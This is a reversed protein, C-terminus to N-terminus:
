RVQLQDYIATLGGTTQLSRIVADHTGRTDTYGQVIATRDRVTITINDLGSAPLVQPRLEGAVRNALPLDRDSAAHIRLKPYAPVTVPAPVRVVPAAAVVKPPETTYVPVTQVSAVPAAVYASTVPTAFKVKIRNRVAAVGPTSRVVTDITQRDQEVPVEGELTVVADDVDIDVDRQNIAQKLNTKLAKDARGSESAAVSCALLVSSVIALVSQIKM